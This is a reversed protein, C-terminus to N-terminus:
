RVMLGDIWFRRTTESVNRQALTRLRAHAHSRTNALRARRPPAPAVLSRTAAAVVVVAVVVVAAAAAPAARLPALVLAAPGLAATVVVLAARALRGFLLTCRACLM